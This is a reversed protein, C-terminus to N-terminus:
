NARQVRALGESRLHTETLNCVGLQLGRLLEGLLAKKRKARLGNINPAVISLFAGAFLATSLKVDENSQRNIFRGLCVCVCLCSSCDDLLDSIILENSGGDSLPRPSSHHPYHM